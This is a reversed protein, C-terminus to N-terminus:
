RQFTDIRQRFSRLILSLYSLSSIAILLDRLAADICPRVKYSSGTPLLSLRGERALNAVVALGKKKEQRPTQSSTLSLQRMKGKM